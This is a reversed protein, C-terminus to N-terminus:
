ILAFSSFYRQVNHNNCFFFYIKTKTDFIELIFKV